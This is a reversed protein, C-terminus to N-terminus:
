AKAENLCGAFAAAREKYEDSDPLPGRYVEWEPSDLQGKMEMIALVSVPDRGNCEKNFPCWLHVWPGLTGEGTEPDNLIDIKIHDMKDAWKSLRLREVGLAVADNISILKAMVM